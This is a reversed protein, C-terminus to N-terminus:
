VVYLKEIRTKSIHKGQSKSVGTLKSTRSWIPEFDKPANYESLFIINNESMERCWEYFDDSIFGKKYYTETSMYPPDCYIIYGKLKSYQTYSGTKFVTKKLCSGIDIVRKAAASADKNKGYRPAYGKFYKGGFGYQHGVFGKKASDHPNKKLRNYEKESVNTPPKWGKQVAKWMLVVSKNTDGAKYKLKPKHDKFLEPIYKYVGLMGCFPECYGEIHFGDMESINMAEEYIEEALKKGIRQKGGHYSTM